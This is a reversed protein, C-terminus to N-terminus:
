TPWACPGSASNYPPSVSSDAGSAQVCKILAVRPFKPYSCDLFRVAIVYIGCIEQIVLAPVEVLDGLLTQFFDM